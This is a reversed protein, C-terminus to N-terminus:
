NEQSNISNSPGESYELLYFLYIWVIAQVILLGNLPLVDTFHVM